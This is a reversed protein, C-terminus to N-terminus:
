PKQYKRGDKGVYITGPRLADYEEQTTVTPIGMPTGNIARNTLLPPLTPPNVPFATESPPQPYSPMPAVGVPPFLYSPIEPSQLLDAGQGQGVIFNTPPPINYVRSTDPLTPPLSEPQYHPVESPVAPVGYQRNFAQLAVQLADTIERALAPNASAIEAAYEPNAGLTLLGPAMNGLNLSAPREAGQAVPTGFRPVQGPQSYYLREEPQLSQMGFVPPQIREPDVAITGQPVNHYQPLTLLNIGQAISAPNDGIYPAQAAAGQRDGGGVALSFLARATLEADLAKQQVGHLGAGAKYYEGQAGATGTAAKQHETQAQLLAQEYPLQSMRAQNMAIQQALAQMQMRQHPIQLALMGFSNAAQNGLDGLGEWGTRIYDPM